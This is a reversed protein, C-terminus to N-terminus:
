GGTGSNTRDLQALWRIHGGAQSIFYIALEIPPQAPEESGPEHRYFHAGDIWDTFSAIQKQALKIAPTQGLYYRDVAPKLHKTVEGASLQHAKPFMLRFLGETAFFVSRMAAKGDPAPLDLAAFAGDFATRVGDYRQSGIAAITSVRMREFETDVAFHVGGESDVRYRVQEEQFVAAVSTLFDEDLRKGRHEFRKLFRYILTISDLVDRLDLQVAIHTWRPPYESFSPFSIGLQGELAYELRYESLRSVKGLAAAIASGLM